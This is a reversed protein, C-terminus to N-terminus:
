IESKKIRLRWTQFAVTIARIQHKAQSIDDSLNNLRYTIVSKEWKHSWETLEPYPQGDEMDAFKVGNDISAECRTVM